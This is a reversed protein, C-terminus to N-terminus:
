DCSGGPSGLLYLLSVPEHQVKSPRTLTRKGLNSQPPNLEGVAEDGQGCLLRAGEVGEGRGIWLSGPSDFLRIQGRSCRGPLWCSSM